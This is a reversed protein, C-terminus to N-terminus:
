VVKILEVGAQKLIKEADLLSYGDRYYVKKIGSTAVLMACAPCPFTTIYLDGGETSIGRKAAESIIWAEGHQSTVIEAIQPGADFGSRADGDIYHSHETPFHKNYGSLVPKGDKVLVAGVHRWWDSSKDSELQALQIFEKDLEESSIAMNESAPIKTVANMNHWRLFATDRTVKKEQLYKEELMRGVDDSSVVIEDFKDLESLNDKELISVQPALSITQALERAIEPPLKRIDRELYPIEDILSRGLM